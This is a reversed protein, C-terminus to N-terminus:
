PHHRPPPNGIPAQDSSQDALPWILAFTVLFDKMTLPTARRGM